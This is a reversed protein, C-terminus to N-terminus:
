NTILVAFTSNCPLSVIFHQPHNPCMWRGAPLATMPPDLCDQHFFLSCYDCSILPARKCTKSCAYCLKAPLPVCGHVDLEILRKNKVRRGNKIIEVRETGPFPFPEIMEPPLEFQKPNLLRAVRILEQLPTLEEEKEPIVEPEEQQQPPKPKPEIEVVNAEVIMEIEKVPEDVIEQVSEVVPEEDVHMPESEIPPTLMESSASELNTEETVEFELLDTNGVAAEEVQEPPESDVKQTETVEALQAVEETLVKEPEEKAREAEELAKELDLKAKEEERKIRELENKANQEEQARLNEEKEKAIKQKM